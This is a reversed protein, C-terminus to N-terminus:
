PHVTVLMYAMAASMVVLCAPTGRPALLGVGRELPFGSRVSIGGSAPGGSPVAEPVTVRPPALLLARWATVAANGVVFVALIAPLLVSGSVHGMSGMNPSAPMSMWRMAVLMYLMVASAVFHPLHHAAVARAPGADTLERVSGLGFWFTSVAFTAMWADNWAGTLWGTLMGAMSIGMVMHVIDVDAETPRRWLVALALRSAHFLAVGVMAVALLDAMPGSAM